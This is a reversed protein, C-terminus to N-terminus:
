DYDVRMFTLAHAPATPGGKTRDHAAFASAFDDLSWQGTGVLVLTGVMNRVQHYLFSRASFWFHVDDGVREIRAGDLTKVPSNSQCDAARFTSFDHQGIITNAAKQMAEVNLPRPVHMARAVELVLPVRRNIVRYEYHRMKANFRAHFDQAAAEAALVCVAKEKLYFNLADRVTDAKTEKELDFHAVQGRAHVGTDTRGAGVLKVDEGSFGKIAEEVAQQVSPANEQRQWGCFGAGDYELTIKWRQM